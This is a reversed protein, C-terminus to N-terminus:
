NRICRISSGTKNNDVGRFLPDETTLIRSISSLSSSPSSSWFHTRTGLGLYTGFRDRLGAPLANFGFANSGNGNNSWGTSSKINRGTTTGLRTELLKWDDDTPVRWNTPCVGRNDTVAFWNYLIGYSSENSVTNEYQTWAGTTLQSWTTANIVNPINDGNRYRKVKLNAAMWIQTNIQVTPYVNGDIDAVTGNIYPLTVFSKNVGYATGSSNTAYARVFYTTNVILNTITSSFLGIGNSSSVCSGSITPNQSTSYCVGRSTVIAGGSSIVEGGVSASNGNINSVSGTTVIPLDVPTATTFSVQNGIGTSAENIAFAIVYYTTAPSLGTIAITFAGTGGSTGLCGSSSNPTSNWSTANSVTSYCVGRQTVTSGGSDTVNGAVTAGSASIASVTGTTVTPRPTMTTFSTQSGYATGASNTAYARVYHLTGSTLGTITASFTGVGSASAVCTGSMSPNQTTAYCVGRATVAVGGSATVEGAVTAGTGSINSVAGTTVTALNISMTTFSTQSGYATGGSNTAFARVFYTEGASLGTLPVSFMGIAGSSSSVYTCNTMSNQTTGHCVGRATVTAGGSDTVNGSVTAGTSTISTVAGTNVVPLEVKAETPTKKCSTATLILAILISTLLRLKM